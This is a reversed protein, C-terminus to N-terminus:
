ASTQKIGSKVWSVDMRVLRDKKLNEKMIWRIDKDTNAFWKEMLPKGKAPNAAVAVSWCYALGKRLAIFDDAKRDKVTELSTTIGDVIKLVREVQKPNKLLRPECLAAAAARQELLNGKGWSQMEDILGDMNVDGWRQLATAVGERTRWRPDSACKRLTRLVDRKGEAVLKGLGVVGCFALFEQPTNSPADETTLKLWERFRKEDGEDAAAEALALNARAGPLGSEALLYKDWDKLERLMKRYEDVKAM